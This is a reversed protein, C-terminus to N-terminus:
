LAESFNQAVKDWNVVNFFANIYDPRRNQYNLYYAHEWVDIGMIPTGSCGVSKMIPNDQNATSCVELKGDKVCLWAWGSGFRTAAANSFAEKFGDLSGFAADIASALAGKPTGGGNPSMVEWFMCHNYFGGGNNRIGASLTGSTLIEEISKGELETGNVAANLKSTYGAHHKGHHIEMTRSDIHPELADHSYPLNPLEFAM